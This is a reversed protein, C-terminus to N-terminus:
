LYRKPVFIYDKWISEEWFLERGLATAVSIFQGITRPHTMTEPRSVGEPTPMYFAVGFPIRNGDADLEDHVDYYPDGKTRIYKKVNHETVPQSYIYHISVLKEVKKSPSGSLDEIQEEFPKAPYEKM